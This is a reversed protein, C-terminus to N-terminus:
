SAAVSGSGAIREITVTTGKVATQATYTCRDAQSTVTNIYRIGDAQLKDKHFPVYAMDGVLRSTVSATMEISRGVRTGTVRVRDGDDINLRAALSPSLHLSHEDPMDTGPTVKGSNFTNVAFRRHRPDDSMASRGSNLVIGPPRRLDGETPRFFRFPNPREFVDRFPAHDPEDYALRFRNEGVGGYIVAGEQLLEEWTIESGDAHVPRCYLPGTRGEGDRCYDQVRQWLHSRSVEGDVRPLDEFRERLYGSQSHFGLDPHIMRLMSDTRIRRSIEGMTDYVITADSRTEPAARKRPVSLSLRWEGNQYLKPAAAHPPSPIVLHAHELTFPDPVPDIVVLTTNPDTLKEVWRERDMMNAEFQTGFAIILERDYENARVSYDLVPRPEDRVALEYSDDPLGMRRAAEVAGDDDVPIRGFFFLRSLAQVESEANIQGPIRLTGGALSGDADLGYKGLMALTDAWLCHGVAGATQSLGVSPINVPVVAPDALREAIAEIAREIRGALHPEPAIRAAVTAAAFRDERALDRFARWSAHDAYQNIFRQEVADPHHHLLAHAVGLALDPDTGSRILLVRDDGHQAAIQETSETNMVDVIYGDFGEPRAMLRHWAGPHTIRGNWGNLLFFRDSGDFACDFTVFPGEQGTLMENHVAGANLCHEANGAVNRVGLLRFVEQLAFITFYDIQGCGYLLVQTDPDRHDLCLDALRAIAATYDISRRGSAFRDKISPQVHIPFLTRSQGTATQLKACGKTPSRHGVRSATRGTGRIQGSDGVGCYGCSLRGDLDAGDHGAPLLFAPFGPVDDLEGTHAITPLHDTPAASASRDAWDDRSSTRRKAAAPSALGVPRAPAPRPPPTPARPPSSQTRGLVRRAGAKLARRAIRGAFSGRPPPPASPTPASPGPAADDDRDPFMSPIGDSM